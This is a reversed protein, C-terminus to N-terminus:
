PADPSYAMTPPHPADIWQREAPSLKDYEAPQLTFMHQVTCLNTLDESSHVTISASELEITQPFKGDKYKELIEASHDCYTSAAAVVRFGTQYFMRCMDKQTFFRIHTIDLLGARRYRWYGSILDQILMVNRVNPISVVLQAKESVLNRLTLMTKWPDYTHELVDFLFVTDIDGRQVGERSWNIDEIMQGLVRDIRPAAIRAARENPEVGWVRSQPFRQKVNAAFDGSSCGVDLIFKPEQVLLDLTTLSPGGIYIMGSPRSLIQWDFSGVPEYIPPAGPTLTGPSPPPTTGALAEPPIGRGFARKAHFAVYQRLAKVLEKLLTGIM